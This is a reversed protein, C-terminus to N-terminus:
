LAYCITESINDTYHRLYFRYKKNFSKILLIVEWLDAPRHYVCIALKPRYKKVLNKAGKLAELEAGEIDMKILTPPPKNSFYEDLKVVPIFRSYGSDKTKLITKGQPIYSDFAGNEIFQLRGSNKFVGKQEFVINGIKKKKIMQRLRQFNLRDPEFAYIQQYKKAVTERFLNVTDGDYAGCDVFVENRGLQMFDKEQFLKASSKIQNFYDYNGKLRFKILYEFVHRSKQDALLSYAKKIKVQNKKVFLDAFLRYYAQNFFIRPKALTLHFITYIHRYRRHTLLRYMEKIYPISAIIVPNSRYYTPIKNLPAVPVGSILKGKLKPNNDIFFVVKIRNKRLITLIAQGLRAAGFILTPKKKKFILSIDPSSSIVKDLYYKKDYKFM